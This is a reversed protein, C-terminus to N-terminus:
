RGSRVNASHRAGHISTGVGSRWVLRDMKCLVRTPRPVFEHAGRRFGFDRRAMLWVGPIALLLWPNYFFFGKSPGILQGYFGTWFPSNFTQGYTHPLWSGSSLHSYYVTWVLVAVVPVLFAITQRSLRARLQRRDVLFIAAILAPAVLVLSDDRFLIAIAIGTGALLGSGVKGDRWRLLALLLLGIGLDVGPESLLETSYQAMMTLLGFALAVVVALRRSWALALGIRYLVAAAAATILPNALLVVLNTSVPSLHFARATAYLPVIVLSVGIGYKSYPFMVAQGGTPRVVFPPQGLVLHLRGHTIARAVAYMVQGDFSLPAGFTLAALIFFVALFVLATDLRVARLPPPSLRCPTHLCPQDSDVM